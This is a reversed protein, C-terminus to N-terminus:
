ERSEIGTVSVGEGQSDIYEMYENTGCYVTVQKEFALGPLNKTFRDANNVDTPIWKVEITEEEQLERL